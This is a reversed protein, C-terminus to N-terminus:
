AFTESGNLTRRDNQEAVAAASNRLQPISQGAQDLQDTNDRDSIPIQTIALDYSASPQTPMGLRRTQRIRLKSGISAAGETSIRVLAGDQLHAEQRIRLRPKSAAAAGTAVLVSFFCNNDFLRCRRGHASGRAREM